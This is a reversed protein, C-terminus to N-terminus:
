ARVGAVKFFRTASNMFDPVHTAVVRLRDALVNPFTLPFTLSRLYDLSPTWPNVDLDQSSQQITGRVAKPQLPGPPCKQLFGAPTAAMRTWLDCYKTVGHRSWKSRYFCPKVTVSGGNGYTRRHHLVNPVFGPAKECNFTHTCTHTHIHTHTHTHAHTCAHMRAHTNRNKSTNINTSISTHVQMCM